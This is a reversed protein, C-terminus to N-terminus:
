DNASKVSQNQNFALGRLVMSIKKDIFDKHKEKIEIVMPPPAATRHVGEERGWRAKRLQRLLIVNLGM